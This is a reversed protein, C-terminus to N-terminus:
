KYFKTLRADYRRNELSRWGLNGMMNSVSSYPSYYKSVWRVARRQVIEIEIKIKQIIAGSLSVM